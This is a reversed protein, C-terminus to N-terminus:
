DDNWQRDDEIEVENPNALTLGDEFLRCHEFDTGIEWGTVDLRGMRNKAVGMRARKKDRLFEDQYIWTMVVCNQEVGSSEQLDAM